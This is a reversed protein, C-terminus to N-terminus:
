EKIDAVVWDSIERWLAIAKQHFPDVLYRRLAEEDDVLGIVALDYAIDRPTINRGVIWERLEPVEAGVQRCIREAEQAVPAEWSIGPKFKFLVIHRIM